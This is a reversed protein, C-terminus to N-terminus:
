PDNSSHFGLRTGTETDVQLRTESVQLDQVRLLVVAERIVVQVHGKVEGLHKKDGCGVGCGGDGGGQQVAHLHQLNWTLGLGPGGLDLDLDSDLGM